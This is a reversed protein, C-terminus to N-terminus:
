LFNNSNVQNGTAACIVEDTSKEKNDLIQYENVQEVNGRGVDGIEGSNDLERGVSEEVVSETWGEEDVVDMNDLEKSDIVKEESIMMRVEENVGHMDDTEGGVVEGTVSEVRRVEDDDLDDHGGRVVAKEAVGEMLGVDEGVDDINDSERGDVEGSVIKTLHIVEEDIVKTSIVAEKEEGM